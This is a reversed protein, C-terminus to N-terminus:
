PSGRSSSRAARAAEVDADNPFAAAAEDLLRDAGAADGRGALVRARALYSAPSKRVRLAKETLEDARAELIKGEAALGAVHELWPPHDSRAELAREFLDEAERARGADLRILALNWLSDAHDPSRALIQEYITQAEEIAGSELLLSARLSEVRERDVGLKAVEELHRSAAALDGSERLAEALEVVTQVEFRTSNLALKEVPVGQAPPKLARFTELDRRGAAQDGRRLHLRGRAYWADVHRPERRLVEDYAALSEIELEEADARGDGTRALAELAQGLPVLLSVDGPRMALLARLEDIEERYRGSAHLAEALSRGALYALQPPGLSKAHRYVRIAEEHEELKTFSAGLGLHLAPHRPALELARRFADVAPRFQGARFHVRALVLLLRPNGPRRAVEEEVLRLSRAYGLEPTEAPTEAPTGRALACHALLLALLGRACRARVFASSSRM